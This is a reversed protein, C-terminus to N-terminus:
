AHLGDLAELERLTFIAASKSYEDPLNDGLSQEHSQLELVLRKLWLRSTGSDSGPGFNLALADFPLGISSEALTRGIPYLGNIMHSIAKGILSTFAASHGLSLLGLVTWYHLNALWALRRPLDGPITADAGEFATPNKRFPLSPFIASAPDRWVDKGNFGPHSGEFVSRFFNFHDQEGQGRIQELQQIWRASDTLLGPEIAIAENLRDIITGYLSGIHNVRNLGVEASVAERFAKEQPTPATSPDLADLPAEATVYKAASHRTLPELELDFPYVDTRIPFDQRDLNPSAGIAVLLENVRALHHMEQVAVGIMTSASDVTGGAVADYDPKLSFGAFLYQVMLAHEINAAERLLRGLELVPNSYVRLIEPAAPAELSELESFAPKKLRLM